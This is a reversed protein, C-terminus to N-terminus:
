QGSGVAKVVVRAGHVEVVEIETGRAILDGDSIVDVL